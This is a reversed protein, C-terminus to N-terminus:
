RHRRDTRRDGGVAAGITAALGALMSLAVVILMERRIQFSGPPRFGPGIVWSVAHGLTADVFGVAMGALAVGRNSAYDGAASGVLLYILFSGVVTFAYPFNLVVSAVSAVAQYGVVGICGLALVRTYPTM